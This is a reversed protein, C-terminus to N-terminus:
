KLFLAGVKILGPNAPDGPAFSLVLNGAVVSCDGPSQIQGGVNAQLLTVIADSFSFTTAVGDTATSSEEYALSSLSGGPTTFNGTGDLFKTADGPLTVSIDPTAGGSSALPPTATVATVGAGATPDAFSGDARHVWGAPVGGVPPVIFPPTSSM